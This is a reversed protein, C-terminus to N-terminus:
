EAGVLKELRAVEAEVQAKRAVKEAQEPNLKTGTAASAELDQIQRLLKKEKRLEKAPDKETSAAEGAPVEAPSPKPAPAPAAPVAESESIKVATELKASLSTDAAEKKSPKAAVTSTVPKPMPASAAPSPLLEPPAKVAGRGRPGGGAGALASALAAAAFGGGSVATGASARGAGEATAKKKKAAGPGKPLADDDEVFSGGIIGVPGAAARAKAAPAVYAQMEEQPVFGPRVKIAKRFTGDARQTPPIFAEGDETVIRVDGITAKAPRGSM